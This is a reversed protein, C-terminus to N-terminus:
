DLVIGARGPRTPKGPQIGSEPGFAVLAFIVPFLDVILGLIIAMITAGLNPRSIFGNELSYVIEGLRGLTPDIETHTVNDKNPLFSNARREINKSEKSLVQLTSLGM